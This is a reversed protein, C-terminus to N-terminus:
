GLDGGNGISGVNSRDRKQDTGAGRMIDSIGSAAAMDSQAKCAAQAMNGRRKWARYQAWSTFGMDVRMENRGVVNGILFGTSLAFCLVVLGLSIMDM